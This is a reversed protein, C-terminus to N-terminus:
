TAPNPRSTPDPTPTNLPILTALDADDKELTDALANVAAQNAGDERLIQAVNAFSTKLSGALTTNSAVDKTLRTLDMAEQAGQATLKDLKSLITGQNTVIAQLLAKVAPDYCSGFGIHM